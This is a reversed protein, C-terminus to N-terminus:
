PQTRPERAHHCDRQHKWVLEEKQEYPMNWAQGRSSDSSHREVRFDCTKWPCRWHNQSRFQQLRQLGDPLEAFTQCSVGAERIYGPCQGFNLTCGCRPCKPQGVLLTTNPEAPEPLHVAATVTDEQSFKHKKPDPPVASSGQQTAGPEARKLMTQGKDWLEKQMERPSLLWTCFQQRLEQSPLTRLAQQQLETWALCPRPDQEMKELVTVCVQLRSRIPQRYAERLDGLIIATEVLGMTEIAKDAAEKIDTRSQLQM